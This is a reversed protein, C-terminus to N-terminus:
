FLTDWLIEAFFAPQLRGAFAMCVGQCFSKRGEGHWTVLPFKTLGL